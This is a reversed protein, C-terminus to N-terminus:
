YKYVNIHILSYLLELYSSIYNRIWRSNKIHKSYGSWKNFLKCNEKQNATRGKDNLLDESLFTLKYFETRPGRAQKNCNSPRKIGIM